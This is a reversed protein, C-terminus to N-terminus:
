PHPWRCRQGQRCGGDSLWFKCPWTTSATSTCSKGGTSPIHMAIVTPKTPTKPESSTTSSSSHIAVEGEALLLDYFLWVNDLSPRIDLSHNMRFTAIRFSAQSSGDVIPRAMGDLTRILLLPDPLQAALENARSAKRKWLRLASVAESASKVTPVTTLDELLRSKEVLGGPQYTRLVRFLIQTTTLECAAIIEDKIAKPVSQLLLSTVRQDLREFGASLPANEPATIRLRSLPDAGLGHEYKATTALLMKKWWNAAYKSLDAVLPGLQIIWDGAELSADRGDPSPLSPFQIPVAKLDGDEVVERERRSAGGPEGGLSRGRQSAGGSEMGASRSSM